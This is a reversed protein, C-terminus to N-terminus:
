LDPQAVPDDDTVVPSGGFSDNFIFLLSIYFISSLALMLALLPLAGWPLPMDLSNVLVSGIVATALSLGMWALGYLAFAAKSRWLALTSSFLAQGPSQGGWHVLAPAHWYPVSLAAMFLSSLQSFANVSGDALLAEFQEPSSRGKRAFEVLRNLGGGSLSDALWLLLLCALAYGALLLLLSRRRAADTRLPEIFQRPHVPGDLLVSQSALMFGLSLMPLAMLQLAIGLFPPLGLLVLSLLFLAFFGMFGLPRKMFLRAADAIWRVGRAAEVTKLSLPM